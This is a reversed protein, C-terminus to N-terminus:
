WHGSMCPILGRWVPTIPVQRRKPGQSVSTGQSPGNPQKAIHGHWKQRCEVQVPSVQQVLHNSTGHMLSELSPKPHTHSFPASVTCDHPRLAVRDGRPLTSDWVARQKDATDAPEAQSEEPTWGLADVVVM